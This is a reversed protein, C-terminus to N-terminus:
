YFVLSKEQPQLLDSDKIKAGSHIACDKGVWIIIDHDCLLDDLKKIEVNLGFTEKLALAIEEAKKRAHPAYRIALGRHTTVLDDSCFTDCGSNIAIDEVPGLDIGNTFLRASLKRQAGIRCSIKNSSGACLIKISVVDPEIYGFLGIYAVSNKTDVETCADDGFYFIPSSIFDKKICLGTCAAKYESGDKRTFVFTFERACLNIKGNPVSAKLMIVVYRGIDPNKITATAVGGRIGIAQTTFHCQIVEVDELDAASMASATTTPATLGIFGFFMVLFLVLGAAIKKM